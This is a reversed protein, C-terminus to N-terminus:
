QSTSAASLPPTNNKAATSTAQNHNAAQIIVTRTTASTLGNQDTAVYAITDTLSQLSANAPDFCPLSFVSISADV